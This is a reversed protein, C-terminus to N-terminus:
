NRGGRTCTGDQEIIFWYESGADRMCAYMEPTVCSGSFGDDHYWVLKNNACAATKEDSV